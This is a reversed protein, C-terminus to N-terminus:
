DENLFDQLAKAAHIVQDVTTFQMSPSNLLTMVFDQKSLSPLSKQGAEALFGERDEMINREEM